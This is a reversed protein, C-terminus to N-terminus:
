KYKKVFDLLDAMKIMSVKGSVREKIEVEKKELTKDSIIVRLPIGLLDADAFKEGARADRDDCLVEIGAKQLKKYITEVEEKAKETSSINLLHVTFPAV